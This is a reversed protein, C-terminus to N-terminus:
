IETFIIQKFMINFRYQLKNVSGFILDKNLALLVFNQTTEWLDYGLLNHRYLREIADSRRLFITSRFLRHSEFNSFFHTSVRAFVVTLKM